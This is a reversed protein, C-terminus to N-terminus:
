TISVMALPVDAEKPRVRHVRKIRVNRAWCVMWIFLCTPFFHECSFPTKNLYEGPESSQPCNLLSLRNRSSYFQSVHLKTSSTNSNVFSELNSSKGNSIIPHIYKTPMSPHSPASPSCVDGRVAM